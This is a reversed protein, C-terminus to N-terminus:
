RYVGTQRNKLGGLLSESKVYGEAFSLQQAPNTVKIKIQQKREKETGQIVFEAACLSYIEVSYRFYSLVNIVCCCSCILISYYVRNAKPIEQGGEM